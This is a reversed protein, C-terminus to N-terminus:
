AVGRARMAEDVLAVLELLGAFNVATKKEEETLIEKKLGGGNWLYSDVNQAIETPTVRGPAPIRGSPLSDVLWGLTLGYFGTFPPGPPLRGPLEHALRRAVALTGDTSANDAIVIRSTFPFDDGLFRHLRDISRPLAREENYVPVVIEVQPPAPLAM